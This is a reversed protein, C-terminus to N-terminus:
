WLLLLTGIVLQRGQMDYILMFNLTIIIMCLYGYMIGCNWLSLQLRKIPRRAHQRQENLCRNVKRVSVHGWFKIWRCWRDILNHEILVPKCNTDYRILCLTNALQPQLTKWLTKMALNHNSSFQSWCLLPVSNAHWLWTKAISPHCPLHLYVIRYNITKHLRQLCSSYVRCGWSAFV